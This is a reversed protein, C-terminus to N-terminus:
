PSPAPTAPATANSSPAANIIASKNGGTTQIQVSLDKPVSTLPKGNNDLFILGPTGGSALQKQIAATTEDIEKLLADREAPISIQAALNKAATADSLAVQLAYVYIATDRLAGPPQLSLWRDLSATDNQSWQQVCQRWVAPFNV